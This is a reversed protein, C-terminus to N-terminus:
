DNLASAIFKLIQNADLEISNVLSISIIFAVIQKKTMKKIAKKANSINGNKLTEYVSNFYEEENYETGNIVDLAARAANIAHNFCRRLIPHYYPIGDNYLTIYYGTKVYYKPDKCHMVEIVKNTTTDLYNKLIGNSKLRKLCM